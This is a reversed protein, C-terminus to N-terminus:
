GFVLHHSACGWPGHLKQLVARLVGSSVDTRAKEGNRTHVCRIFRNAGSTSSHGSLLCFSFCVSCLLSVCKFFADFLLYFMFVRVQASREGTTPQLETVAMVASSFSSSSSQLESNLANGVVEAFKAARRAEEAAGAAEASAAIKRTACRRKEKQREREHDNKTYVNFPCCYPPANLDLVPALPGRKPDTAYDKILPLYKGESDALSFRKFGPPPPLLGPLLSSL